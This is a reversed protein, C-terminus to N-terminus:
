KGLYFEFLNNLYLSIGKMQKEVKKLTRKNTNEVGSKILINNKYVDNKPGSIKWKLKLPKYLFYNIGNKNKSLLINYQSEDIEIIKKDNVKQIFFRTIYGRKYDKDGPYPYYSIPTSFNGVQINKKKREITTYISM